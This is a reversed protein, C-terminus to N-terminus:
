ATAPHDPGLRSECIALCRELLPVGRAPQGLHYWAKGLQDLRTTTEVADAGYLKEALELARRLLPLAEAYQGQAVLKGAQQEAARLAERDAAEDARAALGGAALLGLLAALGAGRRIHGM